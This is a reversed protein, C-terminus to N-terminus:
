LNAVKLIEEKLMEIPLNSRKRFENLMSILQSRTLDEGTYADVVEFHLGKAILKVLERHTVYHNGYAKDDDKTILPHSMLYLKRNKYRKVRIPSQAQTSQNSSM